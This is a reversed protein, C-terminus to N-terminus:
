IDLCAECKALSDIYDRNSEDVYEVALELWNRERTGTSRSAAGSEASPVYRVACACVGFETNEPTSAARM